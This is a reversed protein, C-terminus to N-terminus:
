SRSLNHEIEGWCQELDIILSFRCKTVSSGTSNSFYGTSTWYQLFLVSWKIENIFYVVIKYLFCYRFVIWNLASTNKWTPIPLTICAVEFGQLNLIITKHYTHNIIWICTGSKLHAELARPPRCSAILRDVGAPVQAPLHQWTGSHGPIWAAVIRGASITAWSDGHFVPDEASVGGSREAIPLFSLWEESVCESVWGARESAIEHEDDTAALLCHTHLPPPPAM